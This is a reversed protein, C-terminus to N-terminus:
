RENEPIYSILVANHPGYYIFFAGVGVADVNDNKLIENIEKYSNIGGNVIIPINIKQKLLDLLSYDFGSLSGEKTVNNILIEGAGLDIYKKIQDLINLNLYKNDKSNYIKKKEM